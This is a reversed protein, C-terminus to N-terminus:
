PLINKYDFPSYFHLFTQVFIANVNQERDYQACASHAKDVADHSRLIKYFRKDLDRKEQEYWEDIKQDVASLYPLKSLEELGATTLKQQRERETKADKGDDEASIKHKAAEDVKRTDCALERSVDSDVAVVENEHREVDRKCIGQKFFEKEAAKSEERELAVGRALERIAEARKCEREVVRSHHYAPEMYAHNQERKYSKIDTAHYEINEVFFALVYVGGPERM